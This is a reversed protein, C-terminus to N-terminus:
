CVVYIRQPMRVDRQRSKQNNVTRALVEPVFSIVLCNSIAEIPEENFEAFFVPLSQLKDEDIIGRRVERPRKYSAVKIEAIAQNWGIASTWM